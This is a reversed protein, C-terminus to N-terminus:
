INKNTHMKIKIRNKSDNIKNNKNTINIKKNIINNKYIKLTESHTLTTVHHHNIQSIRSHYNLNIINNIFIIIKNIIIIIKNHFKNLHRYHIIKNNNNNMKQYKIIISVTELYKIIIKNMKINNIRNM